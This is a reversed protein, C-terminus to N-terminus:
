LAVEENAGTRRRYVTAVAVLALACLSVLQSVSLLLPQSAPLGLVAAVRPATWTFVHGRATDGRFV